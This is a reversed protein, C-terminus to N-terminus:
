EKLSIIMLATDVMSNGTNMSTKQLYRHAEEETMNNREMLLDKAKKISLTDKGSKQRTIKKKRKKSRLAEVLMDVSSILAHVKLPTPLLIVNESLGELVKNASSILLMNIDPDLNERIESYIMDPFSYACILIGEDLSSAQAIAKAGTLATAIVNYGNKVLINKISKADELKPFAVIIDVM